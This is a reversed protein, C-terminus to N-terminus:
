TLHDLLKLATAKTYFTDPDELDKYWTKDVFAMIFSRYANDVTEYLQRDNGQAEHNGGARHVETRTADKDITEDYLSIIPTILYAGKKYIQQYRESTLIVGLLNHTLTLEDYKTKMLVPVLLQRIEILNNDTPRDVIATFGEMVKQLALTLDAPITAPM